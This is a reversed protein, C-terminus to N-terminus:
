HNLTKPNENTKTETTKQGTIGVFGAVTADLKKRGGNHVACAARVRNSIHQDLARLFEQSPWKGLEHALARVNGAQLYRFKRPARDTAASM